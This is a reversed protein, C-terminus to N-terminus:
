SHCLAVIRFPLIHVIFKNSIYTYYNSVMCMLKYVSCFVPLLKRGWRMRDLMECICEDISITVATNPLCCIFIRGVPLCVVAIQPRSRALKLCDWLTSFTCQSTLSLWDILTFKHKYLFMVSFLNFRKCYFIKICSCKAYKWHFILGTCRSNSMGDQVTWCTKIAEETQM